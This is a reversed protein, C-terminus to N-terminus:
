KRMKIVKNSENQMESHTVLTALKRAAESKEYYSNKLKIWENNIVAMRKNRKALATKLDDQLVLYHKVTINIAFWHGKPRNRDYNKLAAVVKHPWDGYFELLRRKVFQSYFMKIYETEIKGTQPKFVKVPVDIKPDSSYKKCWHPDIIYFHHGSSDITMSSWKIRKKDFEIFDSLMFKDSGSLLVIQGVLKNNESIIEPNCKVGVAKRYNMYINEIVDDRCFKRIESEICKDM